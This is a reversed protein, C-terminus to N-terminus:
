QIRIPTAERVLFVCQSVTLGNQERLQLVVLSMKGTFVVETGPDIEIWKDQESQPAYIGLRYVADYKEPNRDFSWQEPLDFLLEDDGEVRGQFVATWRVPTEWKFSDGDFPAPPGLIWTATRYFWVHHILGDREEECRFQDLEDTAAKLEDFSRWWKHGAGPNSIFDPGISALCACMVIVIAIGWRFRRKTVRNCIRRLATGPQSDETSVGSEQLPKGTQSRFLGKVRDAQRWEGDTGRRVECQSVLAGDAVAQRMEKVSLPGVVTEGSRYFWRDHEPQKETM